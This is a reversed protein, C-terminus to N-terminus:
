VVHRSTHFEPVIKKLIEIIAPLTEILSRSRKLLKRKESFKVKRDTLIRIVTKKKNLINYIHQSLPVLGRLINLFLECVTRIHENSAWDIILHRRKKSKSNALSQLFYLYAVVRM